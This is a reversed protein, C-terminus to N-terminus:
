ILTVDIVEASKVGEIGKIREEIKEVIGGADDIVFSANLAVLGFAIPKKEIKNIRWEKIESIDKSIKNIDIDLSEPMVKFTVMVKGM